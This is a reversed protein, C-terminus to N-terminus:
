FSWRVFASVSRQIEGNPSLIIQNSYFEPHQDHLLNRGVLFVELDPRAHWGIRADLETYADLEMNPLDTVHRLSFDLETRATLDLSSTLTMQHQPDFLDELPRVDDGGAEDFWQTEHLYAYSGRLHWVQSAQYDLVLEGGYIEGR